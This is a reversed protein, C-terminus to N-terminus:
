MENFYKVRFNLDYFFMLIFLFSVVRRHINWPRILRPIDQNDFDVNLRRIAATGLCQGM